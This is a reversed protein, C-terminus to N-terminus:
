DTKFKCLHQVIPIVVDATSQVVISAPYVASGWEPHLLIKCCGANMIQYNHLSQAAQVESFIQNSDTTRAPLGSCPDFFDAFVGRSQFIDCLASGLSVFNELLRDKEQDVEVDYKALEVNAPQMTSIIVTNLKKFSANPFIMNLENLVSVSAISHVSLQISPEFAISAKNEKEPLVMETVFLPGLELVCGKM